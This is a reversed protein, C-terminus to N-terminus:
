PSAGSVDPGASEDEAIEGVLEAVVDEITALGLCAGDGDVVIALRGGTEQMRRLLVAIPLDPRCQLSLSLVEGVPTDAAEDAAAALDRLRVAGVFHHATDGCVPLRRHGSAIAIRLAEAVSQGVGVAVIDHRDVMIEGVSRDGFEFSRDVLVADEEDILGCAASQRALVRLERESFGSPAADVGPTQKDTLWVLGQVLPRLVRVLLSVVGRVVQAMRYPRRVAMTKPIAEAYLFLIATTLVAAATVGVSGFWRQALFGGITAMSVQLFLVLLLITNLTRPLDDLLGLLQTAGAQGNDADVVIESHRVRVLAVEAVSLFAVCGFCAFWAVVLGLDTM